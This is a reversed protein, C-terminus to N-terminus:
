GPEFGDSFADEPEMDLAALGPAASWAVPGEASRLSRSPAAAALDAYLANLRAANHAWTRNAVVWDRGAGGIARRLDADRALRELIAALDQPDAPRCLFGTEGDRVVDRSAKLDSLVVPRAMAMAEIPKLPSVVECVRFPKRPLAVIDALAWYDGVRNADVPGVFSVRDGLGRAAVQSVLAARHAGDGVILLRTRIARATLIAVSEILDDLGEYNLLSGCYVLVLTGQDIGHAALLAPDKERPAFRQPDVANPLLSIREPTVGEGVLEDAVGQTIALLHDAESAITLELRRELAFRETRDWNPIRAAATLEWLGRLEYVFPIGLRRAAILAPLGNRHNSAAHVVMPRSAEFRQVLADAMRTIFREPQCSIDATRTYTYRVGDIVETEPYTVEPEGARRRDWPFGPRAYCRVPTGSAQLATLMQHTRVSYGTVRFSQTGAAVYAIEGGNAGDVAETPRAIRPLENSLEASLLLEGVFPSGAGPGAAGRILSAASSINGIKYMKQAIQRARGPNPDAAYALWLARLSADGDENAIATALEELV